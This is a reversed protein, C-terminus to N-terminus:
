KETASRPCNRSSEIALHPYKVCHMARKHKRVTPLTGSGTGWDAKDLNDYTRMKLLDRKSWAAVFTPTADVKRAVRNSQRGALREAQIEIQATTIATNDSTRAGGRSARM